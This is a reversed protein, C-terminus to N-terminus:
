PVLWFAPFDNDQALFKSFIYIYELVVPMGQLLPFQCIIRARVTSCKITYSTTTSSPNVIGPHQGLPNHAGKSNVSVYYQVSAIDCFWHWM